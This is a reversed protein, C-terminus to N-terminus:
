CNQLELRTLLLKSSYMGTGCGVDSSINVGCGDLINGKITCGEYVWDVYQIAGGHDLPMILLKFSCLLLCLRPLMIHWLSPHDFRGSPESHQVPFSGVTSSHATLYCGQSVAFFQSILLINTSLKSLSSLM